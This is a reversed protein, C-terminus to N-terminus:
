KGGELQKEIRDLKEIIIEYQMDMRQEILDTKKDLATVDDKICQVDKEKVTGAWNVGLSLIISVIAVVALIVKLRGYLNGNPQTAMIGESEVEM